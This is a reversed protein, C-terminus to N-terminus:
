RRDTLDDADDNQEERQILDTLEDVRPEKAKRHLFRQVTDTEYIRIAMWIVSLLTALAPLGGIVYGFIIGYAGVDLLTAHPETIM